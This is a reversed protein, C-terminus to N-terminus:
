FKKEVSSNKIDSIKIKNKNSIRPHPFEGNSFSIADDKQDNSLSMWINKNDDAYILDILLLCYFRWMIIKTFLMLLM